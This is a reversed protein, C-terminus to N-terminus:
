IERWRLDRSMMVRKWLAAEGAETLTAEAKCCADAAAASLEAESELVWRGSNLSWIVSSVGVVSWSM